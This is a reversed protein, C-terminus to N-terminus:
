KSDLRGRSALVERYLALQKKMWADISYENMARHYAAQGMAHRKQPNNLLDELADALLEPRHPPVVVGTEKTVVNPIDGVSTAVVPLGAMMAELVALPLGERHSSSAFVDSLALLQSVDEREGTLIISQKLNLDAIQSKIAGVKPGSGVMMLKPNTARGQLLHFAEIMDEYGKAGTFRGVTIVVPDSGDGTMERRLREREQASPYTPKPIGNTVVDVSRGPYQGRHAAAVKEGVALIRDAFNRLCLGELFPLLWRPRRGQEFQTSHLTCVVPINALRAAISGLINAYLLHTHVIDTKSEKFYKLLWKLRKLGFLSKSPVTFVEAGAAQIANIIGPSAGERLCIVAPEIGYAAANAAFAALLKQAGGTQLSDIVIAVRIM